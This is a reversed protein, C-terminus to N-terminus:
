HKHCMCVSVKLHVYLGQEHLDAELLRFPVSATKGWLAIVAMWTWATLLRDSRLLSM